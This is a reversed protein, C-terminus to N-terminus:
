GTSDKCSRCLGGIVVHKFDASFGYRTTLTEEIPGFLDEACEETDGCRMCVLHHHHGEEAHHYILRDNSESKFVAGAHELLDL